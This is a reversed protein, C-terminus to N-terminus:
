ISYADPTFYLCTPTITAVEANSASVGTQYPSPDLEYRKWPALDREATIEAQAKEPYSKGVNGRTQKM